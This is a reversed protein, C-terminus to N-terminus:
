VSFHLVERHDEPDMVVEINMEGYKKASKSLVDGDKGYGRDWFGVGHGNRTLWFDHGNLEDHGVRSLIERNKEIFSNCDRVARDVSQQDFDRVTFRRDLPKGGSDDSQDTSSWLAAELYGDVFEPWIPMGPIQGSPSWDMPGKRWRKHM